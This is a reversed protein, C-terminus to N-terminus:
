PSSFRWILEIAVVWALCTALAGCAFGQWWVWARLLRDGALLAHEAPVEGSSVTSGSRLRCGPPPHTKCLIWPPFHHPTTPSAIM